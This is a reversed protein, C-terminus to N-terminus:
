MDDTVLEEVWRFEKVPVSGAGVSKLVRTGYPANRDIQQKTYVIYKKTVDVVRIRDPVCAIPMNGDNEWSLWWNLVADEINSREYASLKIKM